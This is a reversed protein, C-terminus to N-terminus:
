AVSAPVHGLAALVRHAAPAQLHAHFRRAAPDAGRAIVAHFAKLMPYDPANPDFGDLALVKIGRQESMILSLALVGFSGPTGELVDGQAHDTSATPLGARQQMAFVAEAMASSLGALLHTDSDSSPRRSLRVPTGGPWARVQGAVMAVAQDLSIRDVPTSLHTAFVLPTRAYTFQAMGADQEAATIPRASVALDISGAAVARLGGETGLNRVIEVAPGDGSALGAGVGALGGLAAGTGGIRIRPKGTARAPGAAALAVAGALVARRQVITRPLIPPVNTSGQM